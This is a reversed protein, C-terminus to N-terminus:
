RARVPGELLSDPRARDVGSPREERQQGTLDEQVIKERVNRIRASAAAMSVMNGLNASTTMLVYKLTNAFTRRGEEIGRRIAELGHELLM